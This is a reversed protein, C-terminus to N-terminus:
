HGTVKGHVRFQGSPTKTVAVNKLYKNAYDDTAKYYAKADGARSAADMRRAHTLHEKSSRNHTDLNKSHEKSLGTAAAHNKAHFAKAKTPGGRRISSLIGPKDKKRGSRKAQRDTYDVARASREAEDMLRDANHLALHNAMHGRTEKPLDKLAITQAVKELADTYLDYFNM